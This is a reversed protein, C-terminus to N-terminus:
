GEWDHYHHENDDTVLRGWLTQREQGAASCRRGDPDTQLCVALRAYWLIYLEVEPLVPCTDSDNSLVPIRAHYRIRIKPYTAVFSTSPPVNFTVESTDLFSFVSYHCPDGSSTSSWEESDFSHPDKYGLQGDMKSSSDLRFAKRAAKFNSPLAYSQTDAVLTLDTYALAWYWTRTNLDRIANNIEDGAMTLLDAHDQGGVYRAVKTKLQSFTQNAPSTTTGGVAIPM